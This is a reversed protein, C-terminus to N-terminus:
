YYCYNNDSVGELVSGDVEKVNMIKEPILTVDNSLHNIFRSIIIFKFLLNWILTITSIKIFDFTVTSHIHVCIVSHSNLM